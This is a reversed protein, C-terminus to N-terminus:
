RSLSSCFVKYTRTAKFEEWIPKLDALELNLVEAPKKGILDALFATVETRALHLNELIQMMMDYGLAEQADQANSSENIAKGIMKPDVKLGMKKAIKSLAFIDEFKLERLKLDTEM